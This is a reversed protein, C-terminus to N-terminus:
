AAAASGEIRGAVRAAGDGESRLLGGIEGARERVPPELVAEVMRALLSASLRWRPVSRIGAGLEAVRRAYYAQDGLHPVVVAPVGGALATYTTGAGGHHVVAAVHPMLEEFDMAGTFM